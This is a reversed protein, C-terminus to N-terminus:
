SAGLREKLSDVVEAALYRDALRRVTASGVGKLGAMAVLLETLVEVSDSRLLHVLTDVQTPNREAIQLAHALLWDRDAAALEFLVDRAVEPGLALAKVAALAGTEGTAALRNLLAGTTQLGLDRQGVTGQFLEPHEAVAPGLRAAADADPAAWLFSVAGFRVLADGDTVLAAVADSLGAALPSGAAELLRYLRLLWFSPLALDGPGLGDPLPLQLDRLRREALSGLDAEPEIREGDLTTPVPLPPHAACAWSSIFDRPAQLEPHQLDAYTTPATWRCRCLYLRAGEDVLLHDIVAADDLGYATAPRFDDPATFGLISRVRAGCDGCVINNCGIVPRSLGRWRFDLEASPLWGQRGVLTGGFLCVIM